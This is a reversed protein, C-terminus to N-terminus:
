TYLCLMDRIIKKHSYKFSLPFFCIIISGGPICIAGLKPFVAKGDAATATASGIIAANPQNFSCSVSASNGMAVNVVSGDQSLILQNYHDAFYVPISLPYAEEYTTIAVESSLIKISSVDTAWDQGYIGAFNNIFKNWM